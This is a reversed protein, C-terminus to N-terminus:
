CGLRVTRPLAAWGAVNVFGVCGSSLTGMDPALGTGVPHHGFGHSTTVSGMWTQRSRRPLVVCVHATGLAPLRTALGREADQVADVAARTSRRVTLTPTFPAMGLGRHGWGGVSSKGPPERGANLCGRHPEEGPVAEGHLSWARPVVAARRGPSRPPMRITILTEDKAPSHFIKNETCLIEPLKWFLLFGNQNVTQPFGWVM